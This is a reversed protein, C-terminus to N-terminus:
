KPPQVIMIQYGDPDSIVLHDRAQGLKTSKFGAATARAALADLDPALSVLYGFASKDEPLPKDGKYKFLVVVPTGKLDFVGTECVLVEMASQIPGDPVTSCIKLGMVKTYFQVSKELDTVNIRTGKVMGYLQDAPEAAFCVSGCLLLAMTLAPFRKV